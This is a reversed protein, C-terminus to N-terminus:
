ITQLAKTKFSEGIKNVPFKSNQVVIMLDAPELHVYKRYSALDKHGSIRRIVEDSFGQKIWRTIATHRLSHFVLGIRNGKIDLHRDGYLIGAEKCTRKMLCKIHHKAYPRGNYTFIFDDKGKSKIRKKITMLLEDSIPVIRETKNKVDFHGLHFYNLVAGSVHRIGIYTQSATLRRIERSRMGTHYATLLVDKFDADAAALLAKYEEATVTRRPNTMDVKIFQGPVMRSPIKRRKKALHYAASLLSIHNNIYGNSMGKEEAQLRYQEQDDVSINILLSDKFFAKIHKAAAEKSQYNKHRKVSPQKMYWDIMEKLTKFAAGEVKIGSGILKHIKKEQTEASKTTVALDKGTKGEGFYKKEGHIYAFWYTKKGRKMSHVGITKGM